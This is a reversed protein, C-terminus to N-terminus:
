KTVWVVIGIPFREDVALGVVPTYITLPYALFSYTLDAIAPTISSKVERGNVRLLGERGYWQESISGYPYYPLSVGSDKDTFFARAEDVRGSLNGLSYDGATLEVRDIALGSELHVIFGVADGETYQMVRNGESDLNTTPDPAIVAYNTDEVVSEGFRVVITDFVVGM